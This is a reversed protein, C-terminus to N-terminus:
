LRKGLPWWVGSVDEEIDDSDDLEDVQARHRVPLPPPNRRHWLVAPTNYTDYPDCLRDVPRALDTDDRFRVTKAPARMTGVGAGYLRYGDHGYDNDIDADGGDDDDSDFRHVAHRTRGTGARDRALSSHPIGAAAKLGRTSLWGTRALPRPSLNARRKQRAALFAATRERAGAEWATAFGYALMIPGAAGTEASAPDVFAMLRLRDPPDYDIGGPSRPHMELEPLIIRLYHWLAECVKEHRWGVVIGDDVDVTSDKTKGKDSAVSGGDDDPDGRHTIASSGGDGRARAQGDRATGVDTGDVPVPGEIDPDVLVAGTLAIAYPYRAPDPRARHALPAECLPPLAEPWSAVRALIDALRLRATVDMQGTGPWAHRAADLHARACGRHTAAPMARNTMAMNISEKTM